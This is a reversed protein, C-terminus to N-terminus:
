GSGGNLLQLIERWRRPGEGYVLEGDLGNKGSSIMLLLAQFFRAGDGIGADAPAHKCAEGAKRLANRLSELHEGIKEHVGEELCAMQLIDWGSGTQFADMLRGHLPSVISWYREWALRVTCVEHLAFGCIFRFDDGLLSLDADDPPLPLMEAMVQLATLGLSHLDLQTRYEFSLSQQAELETWGLLFQSWASVPWYRCDGGVDLHHWSCNGDPGVRSPRSCTSNPDVAQQWCLADVALGFDVLSYRPEIEPSWDILINHSNVDRHYAIASIREFAPALQILLEQGLHCATLFQRHLGDGGEWQQRRQFLFSDLTEGSLRTMALRVRWTEAGVDTTEFALLSPMLRGVDTTECSENEKRNSDSSQLASTKRDQSRNSLIRLLHAEFLANLLDVKSRCVIEKIALKPYGPSEAAWVAGFSGMGLPRKIRCHCSGVHVLVGEELEPERSCAAASPESPKSLQPDHLLGAPAVEVAVEVARSVQVPVERKSSKPTVKPTVVAERRPGSKGLTTGTVPSPARCMNWAILPAPSPSLCRGALTPSRTAVPPTLPRSAQLPLRCGAPPTKSGTIQEVLIASRSQMANSIRSGVLRPGVCPSLSRDRSAPTGEGVNKAGLHGPYCNQVTTRQSLPLPDELNRFPMSPTLLPNQRLSEMKDLYSPLQAAGTPKFPVPLIRNYTADKSRALGSPEVPETSGGRSAWLEKQYPNAEYTSIPWQTNM